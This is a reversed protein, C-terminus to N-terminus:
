PINGVKLVYKKCIKDMVPKVINFNVDKYAIRTAMQWALLFATYVIMINTNANDAVVANWTRIFPKAFSYYKGLFKQIRKTNYTYTYMMSGKDQYHRNVM